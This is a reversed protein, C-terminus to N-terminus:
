ATAQGLMANILGEPRTTRGGFLPRVECAVLQGFEVVTIKRPLTQDPRLRDLLLRYVRMAALANAHSDSSNAGVIYAAAVAEDLLDDPVSVMTWDWGSIYAAAAAEDLGQDRAALTREARNLERAEVIQPDYYSGDARDAATIAEELRAAYFMAGWGVYGTGLAEALGLAAEAEAESRVAHGGAFSRLTEPQICGAADPYGYGEDINKQQGDLRPWLINHCPPVQLKSRGAALARLEGAADAPTVAQPNHAWRPKLPFLWNAEKDNLGLLHFAADRIEYVWHGGTPYGYYAAVVDIDMPRGQGLRDRDAFLTCAHGQLDCPRGDKRAYAGQDFRGPPLQEIYDALKLLRKKKEKIELTM